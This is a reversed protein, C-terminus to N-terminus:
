NNIQRVIPKKGASLCGRGRNIRYHIQKEVGFIGNSKLANPIFETYAAVFIFYLASFM